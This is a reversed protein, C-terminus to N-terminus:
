TKYFYYNNEFSMPSEYNLSSHRRKINYYM